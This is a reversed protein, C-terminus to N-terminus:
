PSIRNENRASYFFPSQSLSRKLIHNGKKNMKIESRGRQYQSQIYTIILCFLEDSTRVRRAENENDHEVM